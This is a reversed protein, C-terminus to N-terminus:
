GARYESHRAHNRADTTFLLESISHGFAGMYLDLNTEHLITKHKNYLPIVNQNITTFLSIIKEPNLHKKCMKREKAVRKHDQNVTKLVM